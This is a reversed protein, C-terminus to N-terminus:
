KAYGTQRVRVDAQLVTATTGVRYTQFVLKYFTYKKSKIRLKKVQPRTSTNFSFNGFDM